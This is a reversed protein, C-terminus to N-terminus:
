QAAVIVEKCEDINKDTKDSLFNTEEDLIFLNDVNLEETLLTTKKAM